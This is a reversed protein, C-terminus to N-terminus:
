DANSSNLPLDVVGALRGSAAWRADVAPPRECATIIAARWERVRSAVEAPTEIVVLRTGNALAIVTDPNAEVYQILDPNVLLEHDPQSIRHVAIV